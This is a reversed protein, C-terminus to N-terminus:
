IIFNNEKSIINLYSANMFKYCFIKQRFEKRFARFIGKVCLAKKIYHNKNKGPSSRAAASSSSSPPPYILGLERAENEEQAQQRRLAVQAAM